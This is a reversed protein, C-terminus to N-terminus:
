MNSLEDNKIEKENDYDFQIELDEVNCEYREMMKMRREMKWESSHVGSDM